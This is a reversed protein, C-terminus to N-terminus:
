REGLATVWSNLSGPSAWHRDEMQMEIDTHLFQASIAKERFSVLANSAGSAFVADAVADISGITHAFASLESVREFVAGGECIICDCWFYDVPLQAAVLALRALHHYSLLRPVLVSTPGRRGFGKSTWIHRLTSTTGVAGFLAGGALAGVASLDTRLLAVPPSATLVLLLGRVADASGFPDNAHGVALAVPVGASNIAELLYDPREKLIMYDIPLVAFGPGDISAIEASAAALLSNVTDIRDFGVYGSDTLALPAGADLQWQLWGPTLPDIAVKRDERSYRDADFLIQSDAGAVATHRERVRRAAATLNGRPVTYIPAQRRQKCFASVRGIETHSAHMLIAGDIGPIPTDAREPSTVILDTM